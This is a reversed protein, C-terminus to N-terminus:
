DKGEMWSAFAEELANEVASQLRGFESAWKKGNNTLYMEGGVNGGRRREVLKVGLFEEATRLDGWAKRYSIGLAAAAARLSGERDIANLLLWKGRGFTSGPSDSSLWVKSRPRICTM